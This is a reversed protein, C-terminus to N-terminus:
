EAGPKPLRRHGEFVTLVDVHNAGVRYVLRYNGLFVERVDERGIEPVVRGANPIRAAKRARERLRDIWRAAADRDDLAIYREIAALDSRARDTWRLKV